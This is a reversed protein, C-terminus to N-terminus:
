RGCARRASPPHGAAMCFTVQEREIGGVHRRCVRTHNHTAGGGGLAGLGYIDTEDRYHVPPVTYLRKDLFSPHPPSTASAAGVAIRRHPREAQPM